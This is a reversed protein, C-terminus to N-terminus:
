MREMPMVERVEVKGGTSFVPCKRIKACAEEYTEAEFVMFGSVTDKKEPLEKITSGRKGSVVKGTKQFPHGTVGSPFVMGMWQGWEKMHKESEEPKPTGGRFLVVYKKM